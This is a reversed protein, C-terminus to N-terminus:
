PTQPSSSAAAPVPASPNVLKEYSLSGPDVTASFGFSVTGNTNLSPDSIIPNKVVQRLGYQELQNLVSSQFAVASFSAGYGNMSIKIGDSQTPGTFELSLFRVNEITLRSVIDFIQSAALHNALLQRATDIKTNAEKLESILNIDFQKQREALQQKYTAQSSTLIYKWAYGGGAAALSLIFVLVGFAMFLSTGRHRAPQVQVGTPAM